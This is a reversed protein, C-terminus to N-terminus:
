CSQELATAFAQISVFRNKPDKTLATLVAQEVPESLAPNKARLSPVPAVLHQMGIAMFSDGQFPRSGTLWEYVVIALAYQDSAPRPHGEFQEPAMYHATGSHDVQKMSATSHAMTAIGFDSLFLRQQDGLLMNEPKVDRHIVRRDHAYQLAAAVPKIYSVVLSPLL